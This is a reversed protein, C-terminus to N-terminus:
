PFLSTIKAFPEVYNFDLVVLLVLTKNPQTPRLTFCAYSCISTLVSELSLKAFMSSFAIHLISNPNLHYIRIGYYDLLGHFFETTPLAFGFYFFPIFVVIEGTNPTPFKESFTPHWSITEKAPLVGEKVMEKLTTEKMDFVAWQDFSIERKRM